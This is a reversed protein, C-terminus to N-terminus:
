HYAYLLCYVTICTSSSQSSEIHACSSSMSARAVAADVAVAADADVAVAMAGDVPADVPADVAADAVHAQRAQVSIATRM